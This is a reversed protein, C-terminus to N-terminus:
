TALTLTDAEAAEEAAVQAAVTRRWDRPDEGLVEALKALARRRAATISQASRGLTVALDSLPPPDYALVTAEVALTELPTLTQLAAAVLFRVVPDSPLPAPGRTGVMAVPEPVLLVGEPSVQALAETASWGGLASLCADFTDAAVGEAVAALTRADAETESARIARRVKRLTRGPIAVASARAVVEAMVADVAPAAHTWWRVGRELDFTHVTRVLAELGAAVLDDSELTSNVGCRRAAERELARVQSTVLRTTAAHDGAKALIMLACEEVAGLPATAEISYRPSNTMRPEM